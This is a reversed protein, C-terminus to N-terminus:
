SQKKENKLKITYKKALKIPRLKNKFDRLKLNNLDQAINIYKFGKEYLVKCTEHILFESIGSYTIDTKILLGYTEDKNLIESISFGVLKNKIFLGLSISQLYKHHKLANVLCMREESHLDESKQNVVWKDFLELINKKHKSLQIEKIKYEPNERVFKSKKTRMTSFKKGQLLSLEELNLVYDHHGPDETVLYKNSKKLKPSICVEPVIELKQYLSLLKLSTSVPKNKGIFTLINRDETYHKIQLVLNDNLKSIKATNDIDWCFISAFNFDSYSEFKTTFDNILDRDKLTVKKFEPFLPIKDSLM